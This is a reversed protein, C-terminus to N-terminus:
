TIFSGFKKLIYVKMTSAGHTFMATMNRTYLTQPM